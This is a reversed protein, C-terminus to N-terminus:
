LNGTCRRKEWRDNSRLDLVMVYKSITYYFLYQKNQVPTFSPRERQSLFM